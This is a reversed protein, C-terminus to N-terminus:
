AGMAEVERIGKDTIQFQPEGDVIRVSLTGDLVTDLLGSAIRVGEAWSVIERLEKKTLGGEGAGETAVLILQRVEEDSLLKETSTTM